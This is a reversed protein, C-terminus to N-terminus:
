SRSTKVSCERLANIFIRVHYVDEAEIHCDDGSRMKDLVYDWTVREIIAIMNDIGGVSYFFEELVGTNITKTEQGM